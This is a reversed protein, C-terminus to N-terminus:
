TTLSISIDESALTYKQDLNPTGLTETSVAATATAQTGSSPAAITVAPLDSADLSGNGRDTVDIRTVAGGDIVAVATAGSDGAITVNPAEAYGSGGATVTVSALLGPKRTVSVSTLTHNPVANLPTRIREIDISEGIAVGTQDFIGPGPVPWEGVFWQIMNQRMTALGNSQFGADARTTVSVRVPVLDVRRFMIEVEFGQAHRWTAMRNGVTPSGAPKSLAIGRAIDADAGGDVIVVIAGAGIQIGQVTVAASTDNDRVLADTVGDIRLVNALVAEVSDRAQGSVERPYRRKYEADTEVNRGLRAADQNTVSTWGARADVIKTLTGADARVEGIDVARMLVSATGSGGIITRADTAFLANQITRVRAGRPIITGETGTLVATVTSREGDIKQHSLLTGWDTIQRGRLTGLNQGNAVHIALEEVETLIIALEGIIQGQPTEPALNLTPGLANRFATELQTVFGSLGDTQIGTDTIEAM